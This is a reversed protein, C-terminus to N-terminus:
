HELKMTGSVSSEGVQAKSLKSLLLDLGYYVRLWGKFCACCCCSYPNRSYGFRVSSDEISYFTCLLHSHTLSNIRSLDLRCIIADSRSTLSRKDHHIFAFSSNHWIRYCLLPNTVVFIIRVIIFACINFTYELWKFQSAHSPENWGCYFEWLGAM